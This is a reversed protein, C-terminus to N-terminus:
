RLIEAFSRSPIRVMPGDGSITPTAYERLGSNYLARDVACQSWTTMGDNNADFTDDGSCLENGWLGDAFVAGHFNARRQVEVCGKGLVLGNFVVDDEIDLESGHNGSADTWFDTVFIGQAYVGYQIDVDGRVLIIPFYDFCPDNPDPSGWNLPHSTDCSGDANYRPYIDGTDYSENSGATGIAFDALNKIDEWSLPGFQGFTSDALTTDEVLPPSGAVTGSITVSDAEQIVLGPKNYLSDSCVGGAAWGAPHEDNGSVSAGSKVDIDGRVLVPATCCDGLMYGEGPGGPGATLFLSVAREGGHGTADRGMVNILFVDQSGANNLRMLEANYAAGDSLTSWGLNLTGGSQLNDALSDLTATTDNMTSLVASLGTEAAYFAEMSARVARSTKQEDTSTSVVVVMVTTMVVMGLMVVPMTFGRRDRLRNGTSNQEQKM